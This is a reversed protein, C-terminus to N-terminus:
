DIKSKIKEPASNRLINHVELLTHHLALQNVSFMKIKARIVSLNIHDQKKLGLVIKVMSNQLTQLITTNKPLKKM